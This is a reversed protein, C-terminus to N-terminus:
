IEVERERERRKDGGDREREEGSLGGSLCLIERVLQSHCFAHLPTLCPESYSTLTTYHVHAM